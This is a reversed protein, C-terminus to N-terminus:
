RLYDHVFRLLAPASSLDFGCKKAESEVTEASWGQRKAERLLYITVARIGSGCHLLVPGSQNELIQDLQEIARPDPDDRSVPINTYALGHRETLSANSSPTEGPQRFDIVSEIKHRKLEALDEDAPQPGLRVGPYLEPFKTM